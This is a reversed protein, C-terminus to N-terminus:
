RIVLCAPPEPVAFRGIQLGILLCAKPSVDAILQNIIGDQTTQPVPVFAEGGTCLFMALGQM